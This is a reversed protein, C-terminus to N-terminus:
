ELAIDVAVVRAPVDGKNEMWHILGPSELTVDGKRLVIPEKSDSRHEVIEGELIYAIGPRGEHKHVAIVGGPDLTITRARLIRGELSPFDIKLPISGVVEPVSVGKSEKPGPFGLDQAASPTKQSLVDQAFAVPAASLLAILLPAFRILKM